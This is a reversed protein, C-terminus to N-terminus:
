GGANDLVQMYSNGGGGVAVIFYTGAPRPASLNQKATASSAGLVERAVEFEMVLKLTPILDQGSHAATIKAIEAPSMGQGELAAKAMERGHVDGMDIILGVPDKFGAALMEQFVDQANHELLARRRAKSEDTLGADM